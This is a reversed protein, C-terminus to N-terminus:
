TYLLLPLIYVIIPLTMLMRLPYKKNNNNQPIKSIKWYCELHKNTNYNFINASFHVSWNTYQINRCQCFWNAYTIYGLVGGVVFTWCNKHMTWVGYGLIGHSSSILARWFFVMVLCWWSTLFTLFKQRFIQTSFYHWQLCWVSIMTTSIAGMGVNIGVLQKLQKSVTIMVSHM